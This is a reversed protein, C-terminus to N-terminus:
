SEKRKAEEWTSRILEWKAAEGSIAMKGTVFAVMDSTKGSEIKSFTKRDKYWKWPLSKLEVTEGGNCCYSGDPPGTPPKKSLIRDEPIDHRYISIKHVETDFKESMDLRVSPESDSGETPPDIFIISGCMEDGGTFDLIWLRDVDGVEILLVADRMQEPIIMGEVKDLIDEPSGPTKIEERSTTSTSSPSDGGQKVKGQSDTEILNRKSPSFLKLMKNSKKIKM